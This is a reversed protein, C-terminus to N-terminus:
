VLPLAHSAIFLKSRASENSSSSGHNQSRDILATENDNWGLRSNDKHQTLVSVSQPNPKPKTVSPAGLQGQLHHAISFRVVTAIQTKGHGIRLLSM